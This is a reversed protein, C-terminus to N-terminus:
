HSVPLVRRRITALRVPLSLSQPGTGDFGIGLGYRTLQAGIISNMKMVLPQADTTGLFNTPPNTGSNGTIEWAM